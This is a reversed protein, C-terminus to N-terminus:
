CLYNLFCSPLLHPLCSPGPCQWHLLPSLLTFPVKHGSHFQQELNSITQDCPIEPEPMLSFPCNTSKRGMNNLTNRINAKLVLVSLGADTLIINFYDLMSSSSRSHSAPQPFLSSSYSYSFCETAFAPSQSLFRNHKSLTHSFLLSLPLQFSPHSATTEAQLQERAEGWAPHEGVM